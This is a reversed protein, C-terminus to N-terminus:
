AEKSAVADATAALTAADTPFGAQIWAEEAAALAAGLRPGKPIGRALFDAAKLPFIPCSWRAPLTALVRWHAQAAGQPSRTWALLARDTFREPGLRYLL